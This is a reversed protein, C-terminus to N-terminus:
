TTGNTRKMIKNTKRASRLQNLRVGFYKALEKDKKHINKKIYDLKETTWLLGYGNKKLELNDVECNLYDGDKHHLFYGDKLPGHECEWNFRDLRKFGKLTQIWNNYLGAKKYRKIDGIM